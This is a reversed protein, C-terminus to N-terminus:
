RFCKAGFFILNPMNIIASVRSSLLVQVIELITSQIEKIQEFLKRYQDQVSALMQRSFREPSWSQSFAMRHDFLVMSKINDLAKDIRVEVLKLVKRALKRFRQIASHVQILM